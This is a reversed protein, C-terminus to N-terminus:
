GIGDRVSGRGRSSCEGDGDGCIVVGRDGDIVAFCEGFIRAECVDGYEVIIGIGIAVSEGDCGDAGGSGSCDSDVGIADGDVVGWCEVKVACLGNGVGDRISVTSGVGSCEGDGDSGDVVGRDGDIVAYDNKL